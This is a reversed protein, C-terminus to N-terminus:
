GLGKRGESDGEEGVLLATLLIHICDYQSPQLMTTGFPSKSSHQLQLLTHHVLTVQHDSIHLLEEENHLVAEKINVSLYVSLPPHKLVFISIHVSM